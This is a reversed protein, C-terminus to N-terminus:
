RRCVGKKRGESVENLVDRTDARTSGGDYLIAEFERLTQSSLSELMERLMRQRQEMQSPRTNNYDYLREICPQQIAIIEEANPDYLEGSHLIDLVDM